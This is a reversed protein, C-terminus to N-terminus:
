LPDDAHFGLRRLVEVAVLRDDFPLTTSGIIQYNEHGKGAILVTDGPRAHELALAIARARDRERLYPVTMGKVGEEIADLIADPDETRPNDSTLVIRDAERGAVRGMEPRKGRDREGGCGFVVILKGATFSRAARLAHELADPTHAYDVVVAFTQSGTVQEMRGPVRTVSEVGRVAAELSLGREMGAAQAALANLVNFRGPLHLEVPSRGHPTSLTYGTSAASTRLDYARYDSGRGFGYTAKPGTVKGALVQGAPDELNLVAVAERESGRGDPSFLRAKAEFYSEMTGHFDLHDRTLNTFVVTSFDTGFVRAQALAHSSVEMALWETKREVAERLYKQLAPAEPTTFGTVRYETGVKSGLTGLVEARRGAATAVAQVLHTVTTKGNTGTVGCLELFRSPHSFFAAAALAMAKRPDGVVVQPTTALDPLHRGVLLAAAGQNVATAAFDHGNSALGELCVFLEGGGVRRSDLEIGRIDVNGEGKLDYDPLAALLDRLKM